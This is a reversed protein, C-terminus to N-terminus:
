DPVDAAAAGVAANAFGDLSSGRQHRLDIAIRTTPWRDVGNPVGNDDRDGHVWLGELFERRRERTQTVIVFVQTGLSTSDSLRSRLRSVSQDFTAQPDSHIAKCRGRHM